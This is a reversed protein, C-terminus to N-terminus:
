FEINTLLLSRAEDNSGWPTKSPLAVSLLKHEHQGQFTVDMDCYRDIARRASVPDGKCLHCLGARFLYDKVSWKLLNNDISNAAVREYIEIAKDYEETQAAYLAVKLLCGNAASTSGEGEYYDAALQFFDIAQKFDSESECLEAIEKAHKAAISFKGEETYYDLAM